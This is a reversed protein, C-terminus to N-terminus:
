KTKLQIKIQERKNIMEIDPRSKPDLNSIRKIATSINTIATINLFISRISELSINIENKLFYFCLHRADTLNGRGKDHIIAQSTTNCIEATISIVRYIKKQHDESFKNTIILLKAIKYLENDINANYLKTKM